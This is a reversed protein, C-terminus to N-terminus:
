EYWWSASLERSLTEDLDDDACEYIARLAARDVDGLRQAGTAAMLETVRRHRDLGRQEEEVLAKMSSMFASLEPRRWDPFGLLEVGARRAAEAVYGAHEGNILDVGLSKAFEVVAPSPLTM